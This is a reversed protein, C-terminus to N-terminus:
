FRTAHQRLFVPKGEGATEDVVKQQQQDTAVELEQGLHAGFVVSELNM